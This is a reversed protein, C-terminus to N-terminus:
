RGEGEGEGQFALEDSAHEVCGFPLANKKKQKQLRGPRVDLAADV